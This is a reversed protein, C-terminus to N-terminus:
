PRLPRPLVAAAFRRLQGEMVARLTQSPPTSSLLDAHWSTAHPWAAFDVAAPMGLVLTGRRHGTQGSRGDFACHFYFM